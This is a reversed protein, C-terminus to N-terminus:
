PALLICFCALDEDSCFLAEFVLSSLTRKTFIPWILSPVFVVGLRDCTSPRMGVSINPAWAM